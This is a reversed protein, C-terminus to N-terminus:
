WRSWNTVSKEFKRRENVNQREYRYVTDIFCQPRLHAQYIYIAGINLESLGYKRLPLVKWLSQRSTRNGDAFSLSPSYQDMANQNATDWHNTRIFRMVPLLFLLDVEPTPHFHKQPHFFGSSTLRAIRICATGKRM